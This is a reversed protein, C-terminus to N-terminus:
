LPRRKPKPSLATDPITLLRVAIPIAYIFGFVAPFDPGRFLIRLLEPIPKDAQLKPYPV